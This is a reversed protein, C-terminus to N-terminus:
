MGSSYICFMVFYKLKIENEKYKKASNGSVNNSDNRQNRQDFFNNKWNLQEICDLISTFSTLFTVAGTVVLFLLSSLRAYQKEVPLFETVYLLRLVDM